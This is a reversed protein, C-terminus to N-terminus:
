IATWGGDVPLLTGTIYSSADSSLFIVTSAIEDTRAFRKLPVKNIYNREFLKQIKLKKKDEFNIVGGPCIANVRINFKGYYSSMQKTFNNIGGKIVSYSLNEKMDTGKYIELDQGVLGYISSLNIISGNIKNKVMNEAIIKSCWTYSNLHIKINTEFSKLNIKQFSNKKWDKTRPYSANIFIDAMGHKKIIRKFFKELKFTKSLDVYENQIKKNKNRKTRYIDLVVVRCNMSVLANVIENGIYGQGGAVFALKNQLDFKKKYNRIM